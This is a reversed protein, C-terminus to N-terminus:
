KANGFADFFWSAQVKTPNNAPKTQILFLALFTLALTALFMNRFGTALKAPDDTTRLKKRRAGLLGQIPVLGFLVVTLKMHMWGQRLPSHGLANGFLLIFGFVFALVFGPGALTRDLKVALEIVKDRLNKDADGIGSL